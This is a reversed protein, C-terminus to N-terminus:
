HLRNVTGYPIDEDSLDFDVELEEVIQQFANQDEIVSYKTPFVKTTITSWLDLM